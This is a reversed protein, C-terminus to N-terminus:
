AAKTLEIVKPETVCSIEVMMQARFRFAQVRPDDARFMFRVETHDEAELEVFVSNGQESIRKVSGGIIL